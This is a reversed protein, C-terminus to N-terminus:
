KKTKITVILVILLAFDMMCNFGLVVLSIIEYASM